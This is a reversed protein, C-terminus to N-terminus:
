EVAQQPSRGALKLFLQELRGGEPLHHDILRQPEGVELLQGEKLFAVRHCLEQAEEMLHTTLFVTGGQGAFEAILSRVEAASVPDLGATPEDLFLIEPRGLLARALGLRQKMGKSLVAVRDHSRSELGVAELVERIREQNQGYLRAFFRLNAAVSLRPYHGANEFLVGVRRRIALPENRPCHGLVRMEGQDAQLLGLLLRLTTSKGAGNPGLYGFLEGQEVSFEVADLARRPGFTKSVQHCSLAVPSAM